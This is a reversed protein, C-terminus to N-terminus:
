CDSARLLFYYLPRNSIDVYNFSFNFLKLANRFERNECFKSKASTKAKSKVDRPLSAPNSIIHIYKFYIEGKEYICSTSKLTTVFDIKAPLSRNMQAAMSRCMELKNQSYSPYYFVLLVCFLSSIKLRRTLINM